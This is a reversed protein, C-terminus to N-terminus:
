NAKRVCSWWNPNYFCATCSWRKREPGSRPVLSSVASQTINYGIDRCAKVTADSVDRDIVVDEMAEKEEQSLMDECTLEYDSTTGGVISVGSCSWKHGDLPCASCHSSAPANVSWVNGSTNTATLNYGMAICNMNGSCISGRAYSSDACAIFAAVFFLVSLIRM